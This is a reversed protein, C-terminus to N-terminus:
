LHEKLFALTARLAIPAHLGYPVAEFAHEAWPLEVLSVYNGHARLADRFKRAYSIDVVHDRTGYILLTPPLGTRVQDLPSAQRYRAPAQSPTAGMHAVILERTDIPDPQPLTEYGAALDIAGSYSVLVKVSSGPEFAVLEALQGGSSHGVIAVRQPDLNYRESDHLIMRVQARVDDLPAPFHFQPAHRYDLAFVAYGARALARNLLRDSAPSGNQWGGGYVAFVVPVRARTKPLYARINSPQTGLQVPISRLAIGASPAQAPTKWATLPWSAALPVICLVISAAVLPAVLPASRPHFAFLVVGLLASLLLLYPSLETAVVTAVIQTDNAPAIVIWLCLFTLGM